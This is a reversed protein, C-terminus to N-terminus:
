QWEATEVDRAAREQGERHQRSGDHDVVTTTQQQGQWGGGGDEAAAVMMVVGSDRCQGGSNNDAVM